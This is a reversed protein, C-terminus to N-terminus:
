ASCWAPFYRSAGLAPTVASIGRPETRENQLEKLVDLSKDAPPSAPEGSTDMREPGGGGKMSKLLSCSPYYLSPKM